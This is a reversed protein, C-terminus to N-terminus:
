YNKANIVVMLIWVICRGSNLICVWDIWRAVKQKFHEGINFSNCMMTM